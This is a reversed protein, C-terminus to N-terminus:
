YNPMKSEDDEHRNTYKAEDKKKDSISSKIKRSDKNPAVKDIFFLFFFFFFFLFFVFSCSQLSKPDNFHEARPQLSM